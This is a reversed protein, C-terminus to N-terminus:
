GVAVDVTPVGLRVSSGVSAGVAVRLRDAGVKVDAAAGVKVKGAVVDVAVREAAALVEVGGGGAGVLKDTVGTLCADMSRDGVGIAEM